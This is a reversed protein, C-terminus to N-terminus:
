KRVIEALSLLRASLRLKGREAAELNIEIRIKEGEIKFDVIGGEVAFGEADGVTLLSSGRVDAIISRWRKRDPTGVFLIHCGSAQRVDQVQRVVFLRDDIPKGKVARELVPNLPSQGLTCAVIPDRPGTFTGAPWEVFRALNYLLAAKANYEDLAPSGAGGALRAALMFVILATAPIKLLGGEWRAAWRRREM